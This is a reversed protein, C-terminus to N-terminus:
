QRGVTPNNVRSCDLVKVANNTIQKSTNIGLRLGTIILSPIGIVILALPTIEGLPDTRDHLGENEGQINLAFKM